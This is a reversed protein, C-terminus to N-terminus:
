KGLLVDENSENLVWGIQGNYENLESNTSICLEERTVSIKYCQFFHAIQICQTESMGKVLQLIAAENHAQSAFRTSVIQYSKISHSTLKVRVKVAFEKNDCLRICKRVISFSGRGLYGDENTMLKYTAFFPSSGLLTQM